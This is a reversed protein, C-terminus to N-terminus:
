LDLPQTKSVTGRWDWKFHLLWILTFRKMVRPGWRTCAGGAGGEGNMHPLLDTISDCSESM